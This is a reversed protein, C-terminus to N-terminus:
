TTSTQMAWSEWGHDPRLQLYVVVSATSKKQVSSLKGTKLGGYVVATRGTTVIARFGSLLFSKM